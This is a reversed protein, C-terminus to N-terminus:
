VLCASIEAQAVKKGDVSSIASFFIVRSKRKLLEVEFVVTDGPVVPKRFRCHDLGMLYANSFGQERVYDGFSFTFLATAAQAMADTLIVGPVIPNGPFHGEFFFEKGTFLNQATIKKGKEIDLISDVFLFPERHPVLQKIEDVGFDM